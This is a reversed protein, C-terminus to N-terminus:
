DLKTFAFTYDSLDLQIHYNGDEVAINRGDPIAPGVLYQDMGPHGGWNRLWSDNCRFKVTGTKLYLEAEWISREPDILKMPTSRGGVDDYGDLATGIIGVNEYIVRVDPNYNRILDLIANGYNLKAQAGRRYAIKQSRYTKFFSQYKLTKLDEKLQRLREDTYYGPSPEDVWGRNLDERNMEPFPLNEEILFNSLRDNDLDFYTNEDSSTLNIYGTIQKILENRETDRYDPQLQNAYFFVDSQYTKFNDFSPTYLAYPLDELPISDPTALILDLVEIQYSMNGIQSQFKDVDYFVANYIQELITNFEIAQKREDNWNQLQLAMFIGLMILIVEGIAYRFYKGFRDEEAYRRRKGRFFNLM